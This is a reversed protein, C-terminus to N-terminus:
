KSDGKKALATFLEVADVLQQNTLNKFEDGEAVTGLDFHQSIESLIESEKLRAARGANWLNAELKPRPTQSKTETKPQQKTEEKKPAPKPPPAATEEEPPMEEGEWPPGDSPENAENEVDVDIVEAPREQIPQRDEVHASRLEVDTVTERVDEDISAASSLRPADLHQRCAFALATKRWMRHEDKGEWPSKRGTKKSKAVQEEKIRSIVWGPVLEFIETGDALTLRAYACIPEGPKEIGFTGEHHIVGRATDWSFKDGKFVVEATASKVGGERKALHVWGHYGIVLQCKTGYPILFAQQRPTNLELRLTAANLVADLLSVQDCKMLAPNLMAEAVLGMFRKAEKENGDHFNQIRKERHKLEAMIKNRKIDLSNEERQVPSLAKEEQNAKWAPQTTTPNPKNAMSKVTRWGEQSTLRM